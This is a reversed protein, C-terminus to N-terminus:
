GVDNKVFEYYGRIGYNRHRDVSRSVQKILKVYKDLKLDNIKGIRMEGIDVISSIINGEIENDPNCSRGKGYGFKQNIAVTAKELAMLVMGDTLHPFKSYEVVLCSEINQLVDLCEDNKDWM